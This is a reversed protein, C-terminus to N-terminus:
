KRRSSVGCHKCYIWDEGTGFGNHVVEADKECVPCIVAESFHEKCCPCYYKKAIKDFVSKCNCKACYAKPGLEDFIIVPPRKEENIEHREEPAFFRHNKLEGLIQELLQNTKKQEDLIDQQVDDPDRWARSM